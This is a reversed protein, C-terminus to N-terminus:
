NSENEFEEKLELYREYREKRRMEAVAAERKGRVKREARAAYAVWKYFLYPNVIEEKTFEYHSCGVMMEPITEAKYIIVPGEGYGINDFDSPDEWYVSMDFEFGDNWNILLDYRVFNDVDDKSHGNMRLAVETMREIRLEAASIVAEAYEINKMEM